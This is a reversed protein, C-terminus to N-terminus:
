KIIRDNRVVSAEKYYQMLIRRELDSAHPEKSWQDLRYGLAILVGLCLAIYVPYRQKTKRVMEERDLEVQFPTFNPKNHMFQDWSTKSEDFFSSAVKDDEQRLKKAHLKRMKEKFEKEEESLNADDDDDHVRHTGSEEQQEQYRKHIFHYMRRRMASDYAVTNLNSGFPSSSSNMIRGYHTGIMLERDYEAKREDDGLVEYSQQIDLWAQENELDLIEEQQQEVLSSENSHTFSSSSPATAKPKADPHYKKALSYYAKKIQQKNASKSVGLISYHDIIQSPLKM